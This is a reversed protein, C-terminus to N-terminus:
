HKIEESTKQLKCLYDEIGAQLESATQLLATADSQYTQVFDISNVPLVGCQEFVQVRYMIWEISQMTDAIAKQLHALDYNTLEPFEKTLNKPQM